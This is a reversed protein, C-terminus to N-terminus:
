VRLRNSYRCLTVYGLTLRSATHQAAASVTDIPLSGGYSQPFKTSPLPPNSHWELRVPLDIDEGDLLNTELATLIEWIM